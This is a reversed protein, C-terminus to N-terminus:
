KEEKQGCQVASSYLEVKTAQKAHMSDKSRIEM